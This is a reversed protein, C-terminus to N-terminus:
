QLAMFAVQWVGDKNQVMQMGAKGEPGDAHRFSIYGRYEERQVFDGDELNRFFEIKEEPKGRHEVPTALHEEKSWMISEERDTLLEYELEYNQNYGAWVYLKAVSIPELDKLYATDFEKNFNEYATLEEPTLKFEGDAAPEDSIEEEEEELDETVAPVLPDVPEQQPQETGGPNGQQVSPENLIDALLYGISILLILSFAVSVSQPVWKTKREEKAIRNLVQQKHIDTFKEGKYISADMEKRVDTLKFRM